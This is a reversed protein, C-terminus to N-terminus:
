KQVNKLEERIRMLIIGLNNEGKGNSVGWFTDNWHNTEELYKNGTELLKQKLEESRTFKSLCIEYMVKLRYTNWDPRLTIQQGYGKAIGPSSAAFILEQETPCLTKAAQYAHETSAWIRGLFECEAPYFNSLFRYERFFGLIEGETQFLEKLLSM